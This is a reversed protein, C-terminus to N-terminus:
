RCRRIRRARRRRAAVRGATRPERAPVKSSARKANRSPSPRVALPPPADLKARVAKLDAWVLRKVAEIEGGTQRLIYAPHFTVMLPIEQPGIYWRGRMRTIQFDKGLFSKAAPAGLALIIEPAVIAIQENLFARCNDMEQQDPARNRPGNPGPVTPRCKVTNCIYVEERALEIAALMRDLLQGARGVFPRGLEDETEGPGEGVVMLRACPDGEGYVNNRREYGIACKRCADAAISAQDLSGRRSAREADNM